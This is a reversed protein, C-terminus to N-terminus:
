HSLALYRLHAKRLMAVAVRYEVSSEPYNRVVVGAAHNMSDYALAAMYSDRKYCAWKSRQLISVAHVLVVCDSNALSAAAKTLTSTTM